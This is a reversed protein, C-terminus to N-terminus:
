QRQAEPVVAIGLAVRSYDKKTLNSQIDLLKAWGAKTVKGDDVFAPLAQTFADDWVAQNLDPFYKAKILASSRTPDKKLAAIEDLFAARIRGVLDPNKAIYDSKAYVGVFPVQQLEQDDGRALSIWRVGSGDSLLGGLGGISYMAGDFQKNRIGQMQAAPDNLTVFTIDKDLSMGVKRLMENLLVPHTTGAATSAIRLGKLARLRDEIPATPSVGLKKVVDSSLFLETIPMTTQVILKFDAGDAIADNATTNSVSIIDVAGGVLAAVTNPASSNFHTLNFQIGHRAFIDRDVDALLLPAANLSAAANGIKVIDLKAASTPQTTPATTASTTPPAVPASTPAITPQVAPASTPAVTPQVAPASTAVPPPTAPACAALTLAVLLLGALAGNSARASKRRFFEAGGHLLVQVFRDM